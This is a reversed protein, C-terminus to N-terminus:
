FKMHWIRELFSVYTLTKTMDSEYKHDNETKHNFIHDHNNDQNNGTLTPFLTFFLVLVIKSSSIDACFVRAFIRM